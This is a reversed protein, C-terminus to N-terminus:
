AAQKTAIEKSSVNRAFWSLSKLDSRMALASKLCAAYIAARLRDGEMGGMGINNM